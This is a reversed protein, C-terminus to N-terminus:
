LKITLSRRRYEDKTNITPQLENIWLAELTLLIIEGRQTSGLIEVEEITTTAHCQRLHKKMPGENNIHEKFRSQLHRSSQGVYCAKCRPCTIKYVIGSRMGNEVPSKLSPLVTKVKRLTMIIQCPAKCRHLARAYNETTKGRYQVFIM